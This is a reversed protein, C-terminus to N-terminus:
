HDVDPLAMLVGTLTDFQQLGLVWQTKPSGANPYTVEVKGALVKVVGEASIDFITGLIRATSSGFYIEYRSGEALKPVSGFLHGATLDLQVETAPRKGSESRGLTLRHFNVRSSEWLRVMNDYAKIHDVIRGSPHTFLRGRIRKPSKGLCIDARSNVATEIVAGPPLRTGTKVEQWPQEADLRWRAAGKLRFVRAPLVEAETPPCHTACGTLLLLTAVALLPSVRWAPSERAAKM